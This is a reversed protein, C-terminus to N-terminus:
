KILHDMGPIYIGTLARFEQLNRYIKLSTKSLKSLNAEADASITSFDFSLITTLNLL